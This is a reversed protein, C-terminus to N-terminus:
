PCRHVYHTFLSPCNQFALCQSSCNRLECTIGDFKSDSRELYIRETSDVLEDLASEIISMTARISQLSRKLLPPTRWGPLSTFQSMKIANIEIVKCCDTM